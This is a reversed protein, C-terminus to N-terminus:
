GAATEKKASYPELALEVMQRARPDAARWAAVLQWEEETLGTGRVTSFGLLYDATVGFVACIKRIIEPFLQRNENEYNSLTNPAIGLRRALDTQKMGHENRLQAIRNM